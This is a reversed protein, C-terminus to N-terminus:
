VEEGQKSFSKAQPLVVGYERLRKVSGNLVHEMVIFSRWEEPLYGYLTEIVFDEAEKIKEDGAWDTHLCGDEAYIVPTVGNIEM